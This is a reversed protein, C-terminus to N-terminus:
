APSANHAAQVCVEFISDKMAPRNGWLNPMHRQANKEGTTGALGTAQNLALLYETQASVLEPSYIEFLAEGKHAMVSNTGYDRMLQTHRRGMRGSAGAIAVKLIDPSQAM